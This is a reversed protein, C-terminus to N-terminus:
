CELSSYEWSGLWVSQESSNRAEPDSCSEGPISRHIMEHRVDLVRNM